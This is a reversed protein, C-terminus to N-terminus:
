KNNKRFTLKNFGDLIEYGKRLLALICMTDALNGENQIYFENNNTTNIDIAEAVEDKDQLSIILLKKM